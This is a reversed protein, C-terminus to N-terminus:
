HWVYREKFQEKVPTGIFADFKIQVGDPLQVNALNSCLAFAQYGIKKVGTPVVVDGGKGTYKELIGNEIQFDKSEPGVSIAANNESDTGIETVSDPITVSTLSSCGFFAGEGIKKVGTPVVVDGGKGTYKILIGDEIQFDKPEEELRTAVADSVNNTVYSMSCGCHPCASVHESVKEGCDPCTVLAM